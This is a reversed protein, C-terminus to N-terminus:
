PKVECPTTLAVISGKTCLPARGDGGFYIALELMIGVILVVRILDRVM